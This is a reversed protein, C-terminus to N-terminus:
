AYEVKKTAFNYKQSSQNFRVSTTTEHPNGFIGNETPLKFMKGNQINMAVFPYKTSNPKIGVLAFKNKPISHGFEIVKGFCNEVGFIRGYRDISAKGAIVVSPIENEIDQKNASVVTMKTTLVNGTIKIDGLTISAEVDKELQKVAEAFEKRFQKARSTSMQM